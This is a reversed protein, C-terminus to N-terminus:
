SWARVFRRYFDRERSIAGRLGVVASAFQQARQMTVDLPWSLLCGALLVSCFADGAGVTDTVKMATEPAVSIRGGERVSIATAGKEGGTLVIQGSVLGALLRLREAEGAAEPLLEFLEAENLKVWDAGEVLELVSQRCWWPSRLNIDVFLPGAHMGKLRALAAASSEHRVALTGHYLLWGGALPPLLAADIFDYAVSDVIDYVPDGDAFRISVSGTAHVDDTQLGSCDMDWEQMARRVRDGMADNGLRSILLPRLGFAQLHWAVNFPAGGLVATGDPFHDFLVEGFVLPRMAATM